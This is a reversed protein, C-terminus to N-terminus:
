ATKLSQLEDFAYRIAKLYLRSRLAFHNLKHKIRLGELRGAAYLAMFCHNSQTRERKTPSKALAAHSKLTKHFTEVNWRKQYITELTTGECTLDSCALYLTGTSGDQNTFVQRLLLVPFDLGKIWGQVPHHEPLACADIRSFAGQRKQEYNLAVTRNSKLAVVFHKNLPQRIFTLHDKASFWSDALGYRYLLRNHQCVRLMARMQENKTVLSKRKVRRTKVESFLIPKRILEYTVPLSVGGAHYVCNLLNLGKVSRHQSHDYHWCIVDNEDTHPKAQITDDIILVGDDQEVDRVLPKVQQWLTRGDYDMRSLFRTIQDHSVAGEVLASLGTATTAGFSSLLYDSYLELLHKDM